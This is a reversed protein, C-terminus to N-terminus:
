FRVFDSILQFSYSPIVVLRTAMEFFLESLQVLLLYLRFFRVGSLVDCVGNLLM